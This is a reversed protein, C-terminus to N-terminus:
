IRTEKWPDIQLWHAAVRLVQAKNEPFNLKECEDQLTVGNDGRQLGSLDGRCPTEKIVFNSESQCMVVLFSKVQKQVFKTFLQGSPMQFVSYFPKKCSVPTGPKAPLSMSAHHRQSQNM